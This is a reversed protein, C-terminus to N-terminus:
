PEISTRGTIFIYLSSQRARNNLFAPDFSEAKRKEAGAISHRGHVKTVGSRERKHAPIQHDRWKCLFVSRPIPVCIGTCWERIPMEIVFAAIASIVLRVPEFEFGVIFAFAFAFFNVVPPESCVSM